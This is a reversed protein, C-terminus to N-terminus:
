LALIPPMCKDDWHQSASVSFDKPSGQGRSMYALMIMSNCINALEWPFVQMDISYACVTVGLFVYTSAPVCLYVCVCV